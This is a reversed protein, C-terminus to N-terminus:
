RRIGLNTDFGAIPNSFTWGNFVFENIGPLLEWNNGKTREWRDVKEGTKKNIKYEKYFSFLRNENYNKTEDYEQNVFNSCLVSLTYDILESKDISARETKEVKVLPEGDNGKKIEEGYVIYVEDDLRELLSSVLQLNTLAPMDGDNLEFASLGDEYAYEPIMSFAKDIDGMELAYTFDENEENTLKFFNISKRNKPINGFRLYRKM